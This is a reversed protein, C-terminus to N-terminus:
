NELLNNACEPCFGHTLKAESHTDLYSEISHWIGSPDRIKKCQACIPLLGSLVKIQTDAKEVKEQLQVSYQELQIMMNKRQLISSMLILNMSAIVVIYIQIQVFSLYNSHMFFPSKGYFVGFVAIIGILFIQTFTIRPPFRTVSWLLFPIMLYIYIRDINFPYLGGVLIISGIIMLFLSFLCEIVLKVNWKFNFDKGFSLILPTLMLIGAVDSIWWDFMNSSFSFVPSLGLVILMGTGIIANFLCVTFTIFIFEIVYKSDSYFYRSPFRKLFIFTGLYAQFTNSVAIIIIVFLLLYLSAPISYLNTYVEALTGALIGWVLRRDRHFLVAMNFGAPLYIPNVKSINDLLLSDGIKALCFVSIAIVINWIVLNRNSFKQISMFFSINAKM